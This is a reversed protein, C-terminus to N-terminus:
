GIDNFFYVPSDHCGDIIVAKLTRACDIHHIRIRVPQM